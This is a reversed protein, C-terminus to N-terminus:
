ADRNERVAPTQEVRSVGPGVSDKGFRARVADLTRELAQRRGRRFRRPWARRPGTRPVSGRASCTPSSRAAGAGLAAADVRRPAPHRRSLDPVDRLLGGAVAAIDAALDTPERLTRSRTITRFGAYRVKLQVTRGARGAARLRSAVSDALRVVEHELSALDTIDTPFTEEHGISKAVRSPEVPRDDRNWALAHLHRGHAGGVASVLAAEPLAALEGVTAVGLGALRKRTAPGVGWLREVPLPHLFELETGPAVVLLGDPKALDSALKALLKTVAVGVSATLGTEDRVRRRIAVACEPGTGHIRAAGGVDLFAEDSAIPEVLPTFSRLIAMVERSKESYLDFRPALFVGDPCARRARAMPTASYVGFRRAEYSAAAVVGRPGLGGVIVPKGVLSPDELQEVSAYFADLDVHLISPDITTPECRHRACSESRGRTPRRVRRLTYARYEHPGWRQELWDLLPERVWASCADLLDGWETPGTFAADVVIGDPDDVHLAGEFALARHVECRLSWGLGEAVARVEYLPGEWEAVVLGTEEEVERALGALLSADTPDIVGGPTSWEM